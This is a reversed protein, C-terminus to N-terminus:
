QTTSVGYIENSLPAAYFYGGGSADPLNASSHVLSITLILSAFV